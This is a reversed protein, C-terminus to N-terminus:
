VYISFISLEAGFSDAKQDKIRDADKNERNKECNKLKKDNKQSESQLLKILISSLM